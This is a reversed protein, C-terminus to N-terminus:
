KYTSFLHINENCKCESKIDENCKCESKITEM